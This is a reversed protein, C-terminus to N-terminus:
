HNPCMLHLHLPIFDVVPFLGLLEWANDRDETRRIIAIHVFVLAGHYLDLSVGEVDLVKILHCVRIVQRPVQVEELKRHWVKGLFNYIHEVIHKSLNSIVIISLDVLDALLPGRNFVEM